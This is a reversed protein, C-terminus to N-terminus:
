VGANLIARTVGTEPPDFPISRFIRHMLAIWSLYLGLIMLLSLWVSRSPRNTREASRRLVLVVAAAAPPVLAVALFWDAPHGSRAARAFAGFIVGCVGVATMLALITFRPRARAASAMKGPDRSEM